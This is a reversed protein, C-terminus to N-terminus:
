LLGQSELVRIVVRNTRAALTRWNIAGIYTAIRRAIDPTIYEYGQFLNEHAYQTDAVIVANWSGAKILGLRLQQNPTTDLVGLTRDLLDELRLLGDNQHHLLWFDDLLRKPTARGSNRFNPSAILTRPNGISNKVSLIEVRYEPSVELYLGDPGKDEPQINPRSCAFIKQDAQYNLGRQKKEIALRIWYSLHESLHNRFRPASNIVARIDRDLNGGPLIINQPQRGHAMWILDRHNGFQSSIYLRGLM